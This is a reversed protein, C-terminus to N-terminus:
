DTVVTAPIPGARRVTRGSAAARARAYRPGTVGRADLNPGSAPRLAPDHFVGFASVRGLQHAFAEIPDVRVARRVPLLRAALATVLLLVAVGGPSTRRRRLPRVPDGRLDPRMSPHARGDHAPRELEAESVLAPRLRV